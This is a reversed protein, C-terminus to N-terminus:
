PEFNAPGISSKGQSVLKSKVRSRRQSASLKARSFRKEPYEFGATRKKETKKFRGLENATRKKVPDKRIEAHAKKYLAELDGAKIGAKVYRSFQREFAESDDKIANMYDAVHGGFIYKKHVEPDFSWEKSDEDRHSGPFRRENHPINLGGDTAGKLCGFIRAGTTTRALGVDLYARFPAAGEPNAEVNYDEGNVQTNGDYKLGFKNNIRRALLLGTAYAAAYNTLGLKIGYRPLEHAYASAVVVDHNLDASIVQTVVDRHSIRVVFRYKPSKYKNKDQIILRKRAYYDTRAERRRRFKVQFRKFYARNKVAPLAGGDGVVHYVKTQKNGIVSGVAARTGPTSKTKHLLGMLGRHPAKTPAAGPPSTAAHVSGICGLGFALAAIAVFM